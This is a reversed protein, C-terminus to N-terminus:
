KKVTVAVGIQVNVGLSQLESVIDATNMDGIADMVGAPAKGIGLLERLAANAQTKSYTKLVPNGKADTTVSEVVARQEPTLQDLTKPRQVVLMVANGQEDLVPKGNRMLPKAITEYFEGLDHEHIAWQFAEIRERKAAIVAEDQRTLWALRAQIDARADLKSANVVTAVRRLGRHRYMAIAYAKDRPILTARLQCFKEHRPNRLPSSGPNVPVINATEPILVDNMTLYM